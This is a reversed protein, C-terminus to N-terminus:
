PSEKFFKDVMVFEITSDIKAFVLHQIM